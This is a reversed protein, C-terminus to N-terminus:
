VHLHRVLRLMLPLQRPQKLHQLYEAETAQKNVPLKEVAAAVAGTDAMPLKHEAARKNHKEVQRRHAQEM